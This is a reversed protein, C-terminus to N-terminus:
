GSPKGTVLPASQQQPIHFTKATDHQVFFSRYLDYYGTFCMWAVVRAFFEDPIDDAQRLLVIKAM